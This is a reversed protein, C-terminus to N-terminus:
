WSAASGLGLEILGSPGWDRRNQLCQYQEVRGPKLSRPLNLRFPEHRFDNANSTAIASQTARAEFAGADGELPPM